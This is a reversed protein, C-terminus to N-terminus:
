MSGTKQSPLAATGFYIDFIYSASGDVLLKDLAIFNNYTDERLSCVLIM